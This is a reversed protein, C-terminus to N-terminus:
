KLAKKNIVQIKIKDPSYNIIKVDITKYKFMFGTYNVDKNNALDNEIIESFKNIIGEADITTMRNPCAQEEPTRNQPYYKPCSYFLSEGRDNFMMEVPTEHRYGCCFCTNKWLNKIM